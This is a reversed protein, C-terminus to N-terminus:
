LSADGNGILQPTQDRNDRRAADRVKPTLYNYLEKFTAKGNKTSLGKLFQYTFLGHGSDEDTGSIEDSASATLAHVRGTTGTGLDIKAVLPRTGKALVSRGGTGSFCSDMAVLVHKAKLANLREYLRKLPYGTNALFKPDGDWPVLYAQEDAPNPAGHGSFYFLVSSKEDTNKPLWADLYKELGSKGAQQDTLLIINREPYGAALLHAKIAKADRVAHEAPPLSSYKEIGVVLAFKSADEPRRFAPVEVDSHYIRLPAPSPMQVPAAAVASPPATQAAYAALEANTSLALAFSDVAAASANNWQRDLNPFPVRFAGGGRVAAIPKGDLSQFAVDVDATTMMFSALGVKAYVDVIAVLQAGEAGAQELTEVTIVSAFAKDLAGTVAQFFATGAGGSGTAKPLYAAANHSNESFMVALRLRKVDRNKATSPGTIMSHAGTRKPAVPMCSVTFLAMLGLASIFTLKM